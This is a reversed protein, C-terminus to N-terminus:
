MNFKWPMEACFLRRGEFGNTFVALFVGRPESLGLVLWWSGGDGRGEEWCDALCLGRPDDAELMFLVHDEM